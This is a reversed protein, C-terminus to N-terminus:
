LYSRRIREREEDEREVAQFLIDSLTKTIQVEAPTSFHSHVERQRRVDRLLDLYLQKYRTHSPM